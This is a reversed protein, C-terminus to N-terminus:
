GGVAGSGWGRPSDRFAGDPIPGVESLWPKAATFGSLRLQSGSLCRQASHASSRVTRVPAQSLGTIGGLLVSRWSPRSQDPGTCPRRGNRLIRGPGTPISALSAWTASQTRQTRCGLTTLDNQGQAICIALHANVVAQRTSDSAGRDVEVAVKRATRPRSWREVSLRVILPDAGPLNDVAKQAKHAMERVVAALAPSVGGDAEVTVAAAEIQENIGILREATTTM